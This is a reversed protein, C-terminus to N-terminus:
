PLQRTWDIHQCPAPMTSVAAYMETSPLVKALFGAIMRVIEEDTFSFVRALNAQAPKNILAIVALTHSQFVVPALLVSRILDHLIEREFVMQLQLDHAVTGFTLRRANVDSYNILRVPRQQEAVRSIVSESSAMLAPGSRTAGETSVAEFGASTERFIVATQADTLRILNQVAIDLWQNASLDAPRLVMQEMAQFKRGDRSRSLLVAVSGCLLNARELADASMSESSLLHLVAIAKPETDVHTEVRLLHEDTDLGHHRAWERLTPIHNKSLKEAPAGAMLGVLEPPTNELVENSYCVNLAFLQWIPDWLWLLAAVSGADLQEAIHRLLERRSDISYPEGGLISFLKEFRKRDQINASDLM